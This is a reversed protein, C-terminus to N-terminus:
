DARDSFRGASKTDNSGSFTGQLLRELNSEFADLFPSDSRILEPALELLLSLGDAYRAQTRQAISILQRMGGLLLWERELPPLVDSLDHEYGEDSM